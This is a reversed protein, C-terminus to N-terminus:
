WQTQWIYMLRPVALRELTNRDLKLLNEAGGQARLLSLFSFPKRYEVVHAGIVSALTEALSVAESFYGVRDILKKECAEQAGYISGDALQLVEDRQLKGSRGQVVLNVFRDYAPTILKDMLYQKQEETTESFISPWDKRPGSKIVVPQIGLKEELLGKIVMSNMIVGISGTITTPEAIIRDCAVSAYYGGSTAISQMFAVTPKSTERRFEAIEHHIRDSASVTGGPTVIRLIVAKVADDRRATQLQDHIEDALEGDIVGELNIVVIKDASTGKILTSETYGFMKDDGTVVVGALTVLSSFLVINAIISLTLMVRWFIRWGSRGARGHGSNNHATVNPVALPVTPPAAVHPLHGEPPDQHHYGNGANDQFDM